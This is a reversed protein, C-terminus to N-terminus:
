IDTLVKALGEGAKELEEAAAVAKEYLPTGKTESAKELWKSFKQGHQQNSKAWSSMLVKLKGREDSPFKQLIGDVMAKITREPVAGLIEDVKQGDV